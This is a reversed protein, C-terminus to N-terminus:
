DVISSRQPICPRGSDLNMRQAEVLGSFGRLALAQRASYRYTLWAQNPWQTGPSKGEEIQPM